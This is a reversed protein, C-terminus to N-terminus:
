YEKQHKKRLSELINNARDIVEKDEKSFDDNDLFEIKKVWSFEHDLIYQAQRHAFENNNLNEIIQTTFSKELINFITEYSQRFEEDKLFEKLEKSTIRLFAKFHSPLYIGIAEIEDDSYTLLDQMKVKIEEVSDRM